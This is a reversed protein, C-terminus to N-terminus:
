FHGNAPASRLPAPALPEPAALGPLWIALTTGRGLTSALTVEGIVLSHERLEALLTEKAAALDAM